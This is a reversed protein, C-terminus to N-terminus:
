IPIPIPDSNISIYCPPVHETRVTPFTNYVPPLTEISLLHARNYRLQSKYSYIWILFICAATFILSIILVFFMYPNSICCSTTCNYNNYNCCTLVRSNCTTNMLQECHNKNVNCYEAECTKFLLILTTLFFTNM